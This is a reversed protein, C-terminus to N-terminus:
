AVEVVKAAAKREFDEVESIKFFWWGGDTLTMPRPFSRDTKLKHRLWMVSLGGYRRLLQSTTIYLTRGRASAQVYNRPCAFTRRTLM